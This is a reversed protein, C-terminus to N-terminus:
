GRRFRKWILEALLEGVVEYRGGPVPDLARSLLDGRVRYPVLALRVVVELLAVLLVPRVPGVLLVPVVDLHAIM